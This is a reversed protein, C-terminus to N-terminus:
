QLVSIAGAGARRRPSGAEIEDNPGCRALRSAYQLRLRRHLSRDLHAYGFAFALKHGLAEVKGHDRLSGSQVFQGEIDALGDTQMELAFVKDSSPKEVSGVIRAVM